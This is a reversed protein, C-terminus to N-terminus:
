RERELDALQQRRAKLRDFYAKHASKQTRRQRAVESVMAKEFGKAMTANMKVETCEDRAHACWGQMEALAKAMEKVDPQLRDLMFGYTQGALVEEDIARETEDIARHIREFDASATALQSENRSVDRQGGSLQLSLDRLEAEKREARISLVNLEQALASTESWLERQGPALQGSGGVPEDGAAAASAASAASRAARRTFVPVSPMPAQPFLVSNAYSIPLRAGGATSPRAEAHSLVPATLPVDGHKSPRTAGSTRPRAPLTPLASAAWEPVEVHESPSSAM